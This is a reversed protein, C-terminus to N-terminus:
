PPPADVRARQDVYTTTVLATTLPLALANAAWGALQLPIAFAETGLLPAASSAGGLVSPVVYVMSALLGIVSIRWYAGRALATSRRLPPADPELTAVQVVAFCRLMIFTVPLLWVLLLVAGELRLLPDDFGASNSWAMWGVFALLLALPVAVVLVYATTLTLAWSVPLLRHLAVTVGDALTPTGGRLASAVQSVAAISAVLALLGGVVLTLLWSASPELPNAGLGALTAPLGLVGATVVLVVFHRRYVGVAARVIGGISPAQSTEV